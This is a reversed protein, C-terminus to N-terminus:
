GCMLLEISSWLQDHRILGHHPPWWRRLHGHRHALAAILGASLLVAWIGSGQALFLSSLIVAPVFFILYGPADQVLIDHVLFSLAVLLTTAGYRAWTPLDHLARAIAFWCPTSAAGPVDAVPKLAGAGPGLVATNM